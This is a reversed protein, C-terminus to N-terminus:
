LKQSLNRRIILPPVNGFTPSPPWHRRISPSSATTRLPKSSFSGPTPAAFGDVLRAPSASTTARIVLQELGGVQNLNDVSIGRLRDDDLTDAHPAVEHHLSRGAGALRLRDGVDDGARHVVPFRDQEDRLLHGSEVHHVGAQAADAEARDTELEVAAFRVLTEKQGFQILREVVESGFGARLVFGCAQRLEASRQIRDVLAHM